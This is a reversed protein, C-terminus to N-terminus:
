IAVTSKKPSNAAHRNLTLPHLLAMIVVNGCKDSYYLDIEVNSLTMGYILYFTRACPVNLLQNADIM